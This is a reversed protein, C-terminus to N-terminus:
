RFSPRWAQPVAGHDIDTAGLWHALEEIAHRTRKAVAPRTEFGPEAHIANVTLRQDKRDMKPDIRAVLRDGDLVSLVYYGYRRKAKPVYIEITFDFDFLTATRQRDRILNDFPSLLRTRGRWGKATLDLLHLNDKHMLWEGRLGSVEVEVADGSAVLQRLAEKAEANSTTVFHQAVQKATAIGLAQLSVVSSRHILEADSLRTRPTWEPFWDGAHAWVRQGSQRGAVMIKGQVWLFDLMRGVNQNKTWGSSEWDKKSRDEFDRSMLPGKRKLEKLIYRRLEDNDKLWGNVREGWAERGPWQRMRVNHIPFDETLVFSAAHAWYHFLSRDEFLATDLDEVPFAGLRAFLVLIQTRAIVNLPDFQICGLRRAVEMVKGDRHTSSLGQATIAIRRAQTQTIKPIAM